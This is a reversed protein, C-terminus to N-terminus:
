SRGVHGMLGGDRGLGNDGGVEHADLGGGEV